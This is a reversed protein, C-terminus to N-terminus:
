FITVVVVIDENSSISVALGTADNLSDVFASDGLSDQIDKAKDFSDSKITYTIVNKNETDINWEIDGTHIGLKDALGALVDNLVTIASTDTPLTIEGSTVYQVVTQIDDASDVSYIEGIKNTLTTIEDDTLGTEVTKTLSLQVVLGLLIYKM